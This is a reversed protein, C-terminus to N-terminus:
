SEVYLVKYRRIYLRHKAISECCVLQNWGFHLNGNDVNFYIVLVEDFAEAYRICRVKILDRVIM